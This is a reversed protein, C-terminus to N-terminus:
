SNKKNQKRRYYTRVSIGLERALESNTKQKKDRKFNPCKHVCYSEDFRNLGHKVRTKIAEWNEVPTFDTFWSCYNARANQCSWCLTEKRIKKM